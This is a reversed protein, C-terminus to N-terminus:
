FPVGFELDLSCSSALKSLNSTVWDSSNDGPVLPSQMTEEILSVARDLDRNPISGCHIQEWPFQLSGTYVDRGFFRPPCFLFYENENELCLDWLSRQGTRLPRYVARLSTVSPRQSSSILSM